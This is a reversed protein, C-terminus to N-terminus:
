MRPLRDAPISSDVQAIVEYRTEFAMIMGMVPHSLLSKPLFRYIIKEM